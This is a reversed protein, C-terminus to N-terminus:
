PLAVVVPTLAVCVRAYARAGPLPHGPALWPRPGREYSHAWILTRPRRVQFRTGLGRLAQLGPPMDPQIGTAKSVAADFKATLM